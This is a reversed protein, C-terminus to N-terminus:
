RKGKNINEKNLYTKMRHCCACLIQLNEYRDDDRNGNIHDCDYCVVHFERHCGDCITQKAKDGLNPYKTCTNCKSKYYTIKEGNVVKVAATSAKRIKCNSCMKKNKVM